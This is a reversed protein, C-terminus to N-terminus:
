IPTRNRKNKFCIRHVPSSVDAILTWINEITEFKKEKRKKFIRTSLFHRLDRGGKPIILSLWFFVQTAM